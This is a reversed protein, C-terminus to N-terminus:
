DLTRLIIGVKTTTSTTATEQLPCAQGNLIDHGGTGFYDCDMTTRTLIVDEPPNELDAVMLGPGTVLQRVQCSVQLSVPGPVAMSCYANGDTIACDNCVEVPRMEVVGADVAQLLM